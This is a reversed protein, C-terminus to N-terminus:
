NKEEEQAENQNCKAKMAELLEEPAMIEVSFDGVEINFRRELEAMRKVGFLARTSSSKRAMALLKEGSTSPKFQLREYAESFEIAWDLERLNGEPMGKIVQM